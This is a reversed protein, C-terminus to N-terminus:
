GRIKKMHEIRKEILPKTGIDKRHFVPGKVKSVAQEAIQEAEAITDAIGVFAIARSGTMYLGDSKKDVSAYYKKAISDALVVKKNKVPSDPYGEPVAYKCVTAKKEFEVSIEDLNMDIVARCLDVFDTKLIPITNMAEPDGFRANYEVLKVGDKTAILGAYMVGKFMVGTEEFLARAVKRTIELGENVESQSLFPLLHDEFSYTGMGGTNPGTDGEYARKHDQVPPTAVVTVGDTICQLSFEEGVLKEEIIVTPHDALVEECYALAEETTEYHEGQVRVGKGGTLGDPKIVSGDLSELFEGIGSLSSFIRYKPNGPINYKTLIERTFSKSTELQALQKRPGFSSIGVIELADVVGQGLPDEPGVVAFDIKNTKAFAKIAELESYDGIMSKKSLESIGPNNAKMYSFLVPRHRSKAIAEALTHERAANGVLLVNVMSMVRQGPESHFIYDKQNIAVKFLLRMYIKIVILLVSGEHPLFDM